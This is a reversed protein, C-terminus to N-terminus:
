FNNFFGLTIANENGKRAEAKGILDGIEGFLTAIATLIVGFM